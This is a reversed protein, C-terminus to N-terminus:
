RPRWTTATRTRRKAVTPSRRLMTATTLGFLAAAEEEDGDDAAVAVRWDGCRGAVVARMALCLPGGNGVDAM